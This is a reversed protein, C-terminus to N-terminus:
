IYKMKNVTIFSEGNKLSAEVTGVIRVDQKNKHMKLSLVGHQAGHIIGRKNNATSM